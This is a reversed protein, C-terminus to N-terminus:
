DCLLVISVAIVEFISDLICNEEEESLKLKLDEIVFIGEGVGTLRATTRLFSSPILSDARNPHTKSGQPPPQRMSPCEGIPLFPSAPM